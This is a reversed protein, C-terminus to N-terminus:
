LVSQFARKESIASRLALQAERYLTQSLDTVSTVSKLADDIKYYLVSNVRLIVKDSTM